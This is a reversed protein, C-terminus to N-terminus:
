RATDPASRSHADAGEQVVGNARQVRALDDCRLSGVEPTRVEIESNPSSGCRVRNPPIMRVRRLRLRVLLADNSNRLLWNM